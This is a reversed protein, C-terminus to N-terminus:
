TQLAPNRTALPSAMIRNHRVFYRGKGVKKILPAFVDGGFPKTPHTAVFFNRGRAIQWSFLKEIMQGIQEIGENRLKPSSWDILDATLGMGFVAPFLM